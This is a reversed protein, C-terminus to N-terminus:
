IKFLGNHDLCINIQVEDRSAVVQVSLVELTHRQEEWTMTDLRGSLQQCLELLREQDNGMEMSQDRAKELDQLHSQERELQVNLEDLGARLVETPISQNEWYAMLNNQRREIAALNKEVKRMEANIADTYGYLTILDGAMAQPNAITESVVSWVVSELRDKRIYRADCRKPKLASSAGGVCHYHAPPRGKISRGCLACKALGKLLWLHRPRNRHKFDGRREELIRNAADFQKKSVIAPSHGEVKAWEEQPVADRTIGGQPQHRTRSRGYYDVGHYADREIIKRLTITDWQRGRKTPVHRLNLDQAIAFLGEGNEVRQFVEQVIQSEAPHIVRMRHERLYQYGYVGRGDGVPFIGNRAAALKGRKSRDIIQQREQAGVFGEVFMLLQGEPSSDAAETVFQVLVGHDGLETVINLLDVPDRSLRDWAHVWIADILRKRSAERVQSLAPRDLTAGSYTERWIHHDSVTYGAETAAALCLAEQTDLSTGFELQARASVRAYIGAQM